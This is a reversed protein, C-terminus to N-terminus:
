TFNHYINQRQAYAKKFSEFDNLLRKARGNALEDIQGIFTEYEGKAWDEVSSREFAVKYNQEKAHLNRYEDTALSEEGESVAVNSAYQKKLESEVNFIKSKVGQYAHLWGRINRLQESAEHGQEIAGEVISLNSFSHDGQSLGFVDLIPAVEGHVKVNSFGYENILKSYM